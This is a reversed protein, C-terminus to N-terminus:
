RSQTMADGVDNNRLGDEQAAVQRLAALSAFTGARMASSALLTMGTEGEIRDAPVPLLRSMITTRRHSEGRQVRLRLGCLCDNRLDGCACERDSGYALRRSQQSPPPFRCPLIKQHTLFMSM